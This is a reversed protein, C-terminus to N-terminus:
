SSAGKLYHRDTETRGTGNSGNVFSAREQNGGINSLTEYAFDIEKKLQLLKNGANFDLSTLKNIANLWLRGRLLVVLDKAINAGMVGDKPVSKKFDALFDAIKEDNERYTECFNLFTRLKGNFDKFVDTAERDGSRDKTNPELM